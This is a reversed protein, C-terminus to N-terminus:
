LRTPDFYVGSIQFEATFVKVEGITNPHSLSKLFCFGTFKPRTSTTGDPGYIFEVVTTYGLLANLHTDITTDWFLEVTMTNDM